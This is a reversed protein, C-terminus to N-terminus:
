LGKLSSLEFNFDITSGYETVIVSGDVGGGGASEIMCYVGDM